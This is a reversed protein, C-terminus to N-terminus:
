RCVFIRHILKTRIKDIPVSLVIVFNRNNGITSESQLTLDIRVVEWTMIVIRLCIARGDVFWYYEWSSLSTDCLLIIASKNCGVVLLLLM